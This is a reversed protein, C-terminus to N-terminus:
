GRKESATTPLTPPSTLCEHLVRTAQLTIGPSQSERPGAVNLIRIPQESLWARITDVAAPADLDVLLCPKNREDATRQTLLTGGRPPGCSLILTADSDRVNRKTRQSYTASSTEVLPYRNPIPGDEARRGKPCWGGCNLGMGLAVDLAARDVGTQGGSVIKEVRVHAARGDRNV